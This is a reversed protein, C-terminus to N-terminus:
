NKASANYKDVVQQIQIGMNEGIADFYQTLTNQKANVIDRFMMSLRSVSQQVLVAMDAKRGEMIMNLMEVGEAADNNFRKCLAEEYIAKTVTNKSEKNLAETILSSMDPDPCTVPIGLVSYNDMMGTNYAEQNEDLMPYPLISYHDEMVDLGGFCYDLTMTCFLSRGNIFNSPAEYVDTPIYTGNTNWYLEIIEDLGKSTRENNFVCELLRDDNTQSIMDLDFAFTWIDLNTAAEAQFGYFDGGSRGPTDDVDDHINGVLNNFYDITWKKDDIKDYIEETLNMENGKTRNFMMAYTYRLASVCTDGVATFIHGDIAFNDNISQTWYSADLNTYKLSNWDYLCTNLVLSGSTVVYTATVDFEDSDNMYATIIQNTQSWMGDDTAEAYVPMITVNYTDEVTQNRRWAASEVPNDSDEPQFFELNFLRGDKMSVRYSAGDYDIVPLEKDGEDSTGQGEPDTTTKGDDKTGNCAFVTVTMVLALILVLLKKM